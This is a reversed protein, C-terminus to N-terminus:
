EVVIYSAYMKSSNSSYLFDCSNLHLSDTNYSDRTCMESGMLSTMIEYATKQKFFLMECTWM